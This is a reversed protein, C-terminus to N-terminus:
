LSAHAAGWADKSRPRTPRPPLSRHRRERSHEDHVLSRKIGAGCRSSDRQWAGCRAELYPCARHELHMGRWWRSHGPSCHHQRFWRLVTFCGSRAARRLTTLVDPTSMLWTRACVGSGRAPSLALQIFDKHSCPSLSSVLAQAPLPCVRGGKDVLSDLPRNHGSARLPSPM